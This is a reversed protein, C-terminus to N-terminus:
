RGNLVHATRVSTSHFRSLVTVSKTEVGGKEVVHIRGHFSDERFKARRIHMRRPRARPTEFATGAVFVRVM